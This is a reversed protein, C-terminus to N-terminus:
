VKRIVVATLDDTHRAGATFNRYDIMISALISEANEDDARGLAEMLREEGYEVGRANRGETLCDTYLLLADGPLMSFALAKVNVELGERGLPPAKFDQGDKSTLAQVKGSGAKRFLVDTHAANVYEVRDGAMRLYACTLYNDVSSLERVLERNAEALLAGLAEKSRSSVRRFFVNRALLTILGSAIGHGSVDGVMVGRLEGDREYFDYFDGSVGAAPEFVFSLDWGKVAPAKAPFFGRQVSVAISMDRKAADMATRLNRNAGAIDVNLRSRDEASKALAATREDVTRELGATLLELNAYTATFQSALVFAAGLLFLFFAYKSLSLTSGANNLFVDGLVAAAMVASGVLMKGVDSRLAFYRAWRAARVFRNPGTVRVALARVDRILARPLIFVLLYLVAAIALVYWVDLVHHRHVFQGAVGVAVFVASLIKGGLSIKGNLVTELFAVFMPIMLFLVLYEVHVVIDTNIILDTIARTRSTLYISLLLAAGGFYLYGRSERHLVYLLLHYLAFFMYIGILMLDITERSRASLTRYSDIMYPGPLKMGTRTDGPDGNIHFALINKGRNILRKDLPIIVGRLSRQMFPGAPDGRLENRILTGNLYLAWAEGVHAIYLGPDTLNLLRLDAEFPILITFDKSPMPFLSKVADKPMGPVNLEPLVLTRKGREPQVVLWASDGLLPLNRIWTTKFGSRVYIESQTLDVIQAGAAASLLALFLALVRKRM